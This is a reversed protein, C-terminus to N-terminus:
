FNTVDALIKKTDLLSDQFINIWSHMFINVIEMVAKTEGGIVSSEKINRTIWQEFDGYKIMEERQANVNLAAALLAGAMISKQINYM